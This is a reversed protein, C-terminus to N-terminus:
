RPPLCLGHGTIRPHELGTLAILRCYSRSNAALHQRAVTVAALHRTTLVRSKELNM